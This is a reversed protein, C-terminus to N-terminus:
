FKQALKLELNEIEKKKEALLKISEFDSLGGGYVKDIDNYFWFMKVFNKLEALHKKELRRLKGSIVFKPEM